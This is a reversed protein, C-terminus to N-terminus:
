TIELLGDRVARVVAEMRSHVQLKEHIARVHNKVTNESIFLEDAIARNNRGQAVLRLVELERATLRAGATEADGADSRRVLSAFEDMLRTAVDPSLLVRGDASTRVAEVLEEASAERALYGTAGAGVVRALDVPVSGGAVVLVRVEPHDAVLATCADVGDGGLWADLLVVDPRSGSVVHELAAPDGAEGAVEIGPASSLADVVGRRFLPASDAVV